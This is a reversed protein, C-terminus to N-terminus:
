IGCVPLTYGGGTLYSVLAALDAALFRSLGWVLLLQFLGALFEMGAVVEVTLRPLDPIDRWGVPPGTRIWVIVLLALLLAGWEGALRGWWPRSLFDPQELLRRTLQVELAVLFGFAILEGQQSLQHVMWDSEFVGIARSVATVFCVVMVGALISNVFSFLNLKREEV